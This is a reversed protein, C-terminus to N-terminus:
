GYLIKDVNESAKRDKYKVPKLRFLSDDPDFKNKKAIYEAIAERVVEKIKKKERKTVDVFDEYMTLPIETQVVKKKM